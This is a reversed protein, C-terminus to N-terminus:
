DTRTKHQLIKRGSCYSYQAYDYARTNHQHSFFVLLLQLYLVFMSPIYFFEAALLSTAIMLLKIQVVVHIIMAKTPSNQKPKISCYKEVVAIVTNPDPARSSM